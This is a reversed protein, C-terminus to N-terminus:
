ECELAEWLSKLHDESCKGLLKDVADEPNNFFGEMIEPIKEDDWQLVELAEVIKDIKEDEM